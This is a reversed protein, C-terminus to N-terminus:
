ESGQGADREQGAFGPEAPRRAGSLARRGAPRTASCQGGPMCASLSVDPFRPRKPL